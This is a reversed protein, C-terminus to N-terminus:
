NIAFNDIGSSGATSGGRGIGHKTFSAGFADTVTTLPSGSAASYVGISNGATMARAMTPRTTTDPQAWVQSITGGVSKELVLGYYDTYTTHAVSTYGTNATSNTYITRSYYTVLFGRNNYFSPGCGGSGISGNVGYYTDLYGNSASAGGYYPGAPSPYINGDECFSMDYVWPGPSYTYTYYTYPESTYYTSSQTNTQERLRWWNTADNVRFYLADGTGIDASVDVDARSSEIVALPNTSVASSTVARTGNTSWAGSLVNWAVGGTSTVGLTAGTRNFNDSMATTASKTASWDGTDEPALAQVRFYYLVGPTLGSFVSSTTTIGTIVQPSTFSSNTSFNVTYNQAFAIANWNFTIQSASNIAVTVVPTALQNTTLSLSNSWNGASGAANPMVRFYYLTGAALGTMPTSTGASTTEVLGTTFASDSAQQVRYNLANNVTTWNLTIQTLGVPTGSVVTDGSTAIATKRRSTITKIQGTAEERYKLTWELCAAGTNCAASGDGVYAFIDAEGPAGTLDLCKISNTETAASRPILLTKTEVNRLVTTTVIGANPNSVASCSPYEGNADYYKELAEALITAQSSRQADRADAQYTTFGTTTMTALIGIVTIVVLLEIM